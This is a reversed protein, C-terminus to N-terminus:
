QALTATISLMFRGDAKDEGGGLLDDGSSDAGLYALRATFMGFDAELGVSWDVYSDDLADDLDYYGASATLRISDAVPLRGNNALPYSGSIGYYIGQDDLNFVEDSYAILLSVYERYHAGLQLETWDLDFGSATGPFIYHIATIDMSWADNLAGGYGIYVDIEQDAEDDEPGGDVADMNDVNSGWIGAFLGNDHTYDFSAHVAPDNMTQSVGRFMYDTAFAASASLTYSRASSEDDAFTLASCATFVGLCGIFAAKLHM